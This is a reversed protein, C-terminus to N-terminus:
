SAEDDLKQFESMQRDLEAKAQSKAPEALSAMKSQLENLLQRAKNRAAFTRESRDKVHQTDRVTKRGEEIRRLLDLITETLNFTKGGMAYM